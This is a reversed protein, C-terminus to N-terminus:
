NELSHTSVMNTKAWWSQVEVFTKQIFLHIFSLCHPTINPLAQDIARLVHCYYHTNINIMPIQKPLALVTPKQPSVHICADIMMKDCDLGQCYHNAQLHALSGIVAALHQTPTRSIFWWSKRRPLSDSHVYSRLSNNAMGTTHPSQCFLWCRPVSWQLISLSFWTGPSM